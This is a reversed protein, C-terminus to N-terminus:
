RYQSDFTETDAELTLDKLRGECLVHGPRSFPVQHSVLWLIFLCHGDQSHCGLESTVYLQLIAQVSFRM